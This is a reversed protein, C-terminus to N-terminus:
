IEPYITNKILSLVQLWIETGNKVRLEPMRFRQETYGTPRATLTAVLVAFGSNRVADMHQHGQGPLRKFVSEGPLGAAYRALSLECSKPDTM